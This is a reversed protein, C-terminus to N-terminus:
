LAWSAVAAGSEPAGIPRAEPQPGGVAMVDPRIVEHRIPRVVTPGKPNQVDDVFVRSRTQGRHHSSPDARLVHPQDQRIQEQTVSDRRM